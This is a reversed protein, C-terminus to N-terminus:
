FIQGSKKLISLGFILYIVVCYMSISVCLCITVCPATNTVSLTVILLKLVGARVPLTGYDQWMDHINLDTNGISRGCLGSGTRALARAMLRCSLKSLLTVSTTQCSNAQNILCWTIQNTSQSELSPPVEQVQRPLECLHICM